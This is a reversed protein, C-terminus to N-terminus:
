AVCVMVSLNALGVDALTFGTAVDFTYTFIQIEDDNISGKMWVLPSATPGIYIEQLNSGAFSGPVAAVGKYIGAGTRTWNIAGFPEYTGDQYTVSPPTATGDQNLNMRITRQKGVLRQFGEFMQFGNPDDDPLGNYVMQAFDMMKHFFQIYDNMFATDWRTGAESMTKDRTSGFPFEVSPPNTNQKNELSSAM